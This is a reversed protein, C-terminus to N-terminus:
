VLGRGNPLFRLREGDRRTRIQPMEVPSGDPRVALLPTLTFVNPGSYAIVSGDPSWVPNRGVKSTLRIPEGGATPIKFLGEGKGDNGGTVIWKGTRPGTRRAGRYRDGSRGREIRGGDATILRVAARKGEKRIVILSGAGTPPSRCLPQLGIGGESARWM